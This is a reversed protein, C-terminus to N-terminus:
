KAIAKGPLVIKKPLYIDTKHRNAYASLSDFIKKNLDPRSEYFKLSTQFDQRSIHHIKFVGDLLHESALMKDKQLSDKAIYNNSYDDAMIVDKMIKVMSDTPIIDKPIGTRDSCAAFFVVM